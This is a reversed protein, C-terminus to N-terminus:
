DDETRQMAEPVDDRNNHPMIIRPLGDRGDPTDVVMTEKWGMRTKCWFIQAAVNNFDVANKYLSEAVKANAKVHGIDIERRYYKELTNKNITLVRAIQDLPVGFQVMAQVQRRSRDDAYYFPRGVKKSIDRPILEKFKWIM